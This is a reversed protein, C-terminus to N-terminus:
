ISMKGIEIYNGWLCVNPYITVNNGFKLKLAYNYVPGLINIKSGGKRNLERSLVKREIKKLIKYILGIM